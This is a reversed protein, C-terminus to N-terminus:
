NKKKLLYGYFADTGYLPAAANNVTVKDKTVLTTVPVDIYKYFITDHGVCLGVTVVLDPKEANLQKAQLIPDCIMLGMRETKQELGIETKRIAGCKCSIGFVEFGRARLIRAFTRAESLLGICTAIGIKKAGIREAFEMTEEVRTMKGMMEVDAAAKMYLASEEDTHYLDIVEARLEESVEKTQCFAPYNEANDPMMCAKVACDICSRRVKDM